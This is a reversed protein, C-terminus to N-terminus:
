GTIRRITTSPIATGSRFDWTQEKGRSDCSNRGVQPLLYELIASARHGKLENIDSVTMANRKVM